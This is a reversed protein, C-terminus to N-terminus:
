LSREKGGKAHKFTVMRIKLQKNTTDIAFPDNQEMESLLKM